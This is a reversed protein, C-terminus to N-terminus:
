TAGVARWLQWRGAKISVSWGYGNTWGSMRLRQWIYHQDQEQDQEQKHDQDERQDRRKAVDLSISLLLLLSLGPFAPMKGALWLTHTAIVAM